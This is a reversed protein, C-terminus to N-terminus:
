GDSRYPEWDKIMMRATEETSLDEELMKRLNKIIIQEFEYGKEMKPRYYAYSKKQATITASAQPLNIMYQGTILANLNSRTPMNGGEEELFTNIQNQPSTAWVIFLWSALKKIDSSNTNIGIGSGGYINASRKAGFPLVGYGTKGAVKSDKENEVVPVNEDWNLMMAVEGQQFLEAGETWNLSQVEEPEQYVLRKYQELAKQFPQTDALLRGAAVSGYTHTGVDQFYDGGGASLLNSFETYISNHEASMTISGYKVAPVHESIWRSVEEYQEWTFSQTGPSPQYGLDRKMEERYQDFIDKRYYLIMTTSDFPVAYLKEEDLFYSSVKLQSEAFSELGGVIHPIDPNHEYIYLDELQDYFRCLTQYPDVYILEYQDTKSIFEMNIKETMTEFDMSRINVKIGTVETFKDVERSLINANINNEVLFDLIVGDCQKWNFDEPATVNGFANKEGGFLETKIGQGKEPNEECGSLMQICLVLILIFCIRRKMFDGLKISSHGLPAYFPVLWIRDM